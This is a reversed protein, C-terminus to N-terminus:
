FINILKIYHFVIPISLLIDSFMDTINGNFKVSFIFHSCQVLCRLLM